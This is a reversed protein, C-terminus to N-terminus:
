LRVRGRQFSTTRAQTGLAQDIGESVGTAVAGRISGLDGFAGGVNVVITIGDGNGGGNRTNAEIQQQVSLSSFLIDNTRFVEAQTVGGLDVRSARAAQSQTDKILNDAAAGDIIAQVAKEGLRRAEEILAPDLGRAIADNVLEQWKLQEQLVRAAEDQGDLLLAQIALYNELSQNEKARAAEAAQANAEIDGLAANLVQQAVSVAYGYEEVSIAGSALAADAAAVRAEFEKQARFADGRGALNAEDQGLGGLVRDRVSQRENEAAEDAQRQRDAERKKREAAEAEIVALAIAEDIGLRRAEALLKEAEIQVRLADAAEQGFLAAVRRIELDQQFADRAQNIREVLARIVDGARTDGLRAAEKALFDVARAADSFSRVFNERFATGGAIQDLLAAARAIESGFGDLPSVFDRISRQLAERAAQAQERAEDSAKLIGVGLSIIGGVIGATGGIAAAIDRGGEGKSSRLNQIGRAVDALAQVASSTSGPLVGVARDLAALGEAGLLLTGVLSRTSESASVAAEQLAVWRARAEEIGASNATLADSTLGGAMRPGGAVGGTPTGIRGSLTDRLRREEKVLNLRERASRVGAAQLRDIEALRDALVAVEGAEEARLEVLERIADIRDAEAKAAEEIAKLLAASALQQERTRSQAEQGITRGVAALRGFAVATGEAVAQAEELPSLIGLTSNNVEDAAERLRILNQQAQALSANADRFESTNFGLAEQIRLGPERLAARVVEIQGALVALEAGAVQVVQIGTKLGKGFSQIADTLTDFSSSADDLAGLLEAFVPLAATAIEARLDAVRAQVRKATNAASDQTRDLDGVAVGAKETILALTATAKEQATLTAAVTKGSDILARQQVETESIVIGLRKMPERQGTIASTIANLTEATPLNNFSGIDAALRIVDESFAASATQAFGMGQAIAATTATLDEAARRSLGAKVAFDDLFRNADAIAPGMVTRFKSSTEEVSSGLAFMRDLAVVVGGATLAKFATSVMAAQRNISATVGEVERTAKALDAKLGSVDAAIRVTLNGVEAM